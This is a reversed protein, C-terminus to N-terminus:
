HVLADDMLVLILVENVSEGDLQEVIKPVLADDMLVLILVLVLRNSTADYLQVLADDM